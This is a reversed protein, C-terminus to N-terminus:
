PKNRVGLIAAALDRLSELSDSKRSSGKELAKLLEQRERETKSRLQPKGEKLGQTVVALQVRPSPTSLTPSNGRKKGSNLSPNQNNLHPKRTPTPPLPKSPPIDAPGRNLPAVAPKSYPQAVVTPQVTHQEYSRPKPMVVLLLRYFTPKKYKWLWVAGPVALCLSTIALRKGWKKVKKIDISNYVDSSLISGGIFGMAVVVLIVKTKGM